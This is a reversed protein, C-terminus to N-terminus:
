VKVEGSAATYAAVSYGVETSTVREGVGEGFYYGLLERAEDLSDFRFSTRLVQAEFGWEVWRAPDGALPRETLAAFEDGGANDVVVIPGGARVVRQVERLGREISESEVGSLFYAWTSYAADFSRDHFPIDQAVGSAWVLTREPAVMGPDPEMAVVTRGPRSLREATFGDGAGVDLVLGPPLLGDLFSIVVGDRDMCRREIEFIRRDTSGYFPLVDEGFRKVGRETM